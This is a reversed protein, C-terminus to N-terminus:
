PCAETLEALKTVTKWNRGTASAGLSREFYDITLKTRASGNPLHLYVERGRLDFRDPPSRDLDLEGKAKATPRGDLFLVHLKKPDSEDKLFPNGAVIKRLDAPSRLMVAISLGFEGAIARQIEAAIEDAKGTRSRFVVNGSQVYTAVDEYGLGSFLSRLGAMPIKNTAGLNIARLLAAFTPM